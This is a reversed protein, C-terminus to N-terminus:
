KVCHLDPVVNGYVVFLGLMIIVKNQVMYLLDPVVNGAVVILGLM